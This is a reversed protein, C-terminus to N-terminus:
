GAGSMLRLGHRSELVETCPWECTYDLEKHPLAIRLAAGICSLLGLAFIMSIRIKKARSIKLKLFLAIVPVLLLFDMLVHMISIGTLMKWADLCKPIKDRRGRFELDYADRPNPGCQFTYMFFTILMFVVLASIYVQAARNWGRITEATFRRIFIAISIKIFSLSM